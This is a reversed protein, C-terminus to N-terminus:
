PARRREIAETADRATGVVEIYRDSSLLECMAELVPAEDDALVLRIRGM